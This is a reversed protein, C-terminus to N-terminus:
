GKGRFKECIYGLPLRCKNDLWKADRDIVGCDQNGYNNPQRRKWNKYGTLRTGDTWKWIGETVLDSLGIWYSGRKGWYKIKLFKSEKESEIKVLKSGSKECNRKAETWKLPSKYLKYCSSGFSTWQAECSAAM